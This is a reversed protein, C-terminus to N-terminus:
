PNNCFSFCQLLCRLARSYRLVQQVFISYLLIRNYCLTAATRAAARKRKKPPPKRFYLCCVDRKLLKRQATDSSSVTWGIKPYATNKSLVTWGIKPYATENSSVNYVTLKKPSINYYILLTRYQVNLRSGIERSKSCKSCKLVM